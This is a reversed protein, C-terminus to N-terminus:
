RRQGAPDVHRCHRRVPLRDLGGRRHDHDDRATGYSLSLIMVIISDCLDSQSSGGIAVVEGSLRLRRIPTRSMQEILRNMTPSSMVATFTARGDIPSRISALREQSCHVTLAYVTTMALRNSNEPEIASRSPRLRVSTM